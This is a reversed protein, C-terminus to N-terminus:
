LVEVADTVVHGTETAMAEAAADFLPRFKAAYAAAGAAEEASLVGGVTFVARSFNDGKANKSQELAIHTVVSSLRMGASGLTGVRYAKASKLSTAPLAVCVPLFSGPRLMFMIEKANCAQGPAPNGKDDTATGYQSWPCTKCAVGPDGIGIVGDNSRCQPPTGSVADDAWYARTLKFHVVIGDLIPQAEVGSITPIEWTRGGGSPVKIRPLDFESLEEDGMNDAIIAELEAPEHNLALYGGPEITSLATSPM